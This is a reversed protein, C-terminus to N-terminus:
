DVELIEGTILNVQKDTWSASKLYELIVYSGNDCLVRFWDRRNKRCYGMLDRYSYIQNTDCFDMIEDIATYKDASMGIVSFYDAGGMMVVNETSYQAKDANDLHCLYRSAARLDGVIFRDLNKYPPPLVAGVCEFFGVAQERTKPSALMLIVHYHPKKPTGDANIDKDHLPSIFFPLQMESLVEMWNDPTNVCDPYVIATFNRYKKVSEKKVDSSKETNM